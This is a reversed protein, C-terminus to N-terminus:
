DTGGVKLDIADIQEVFAPDKQKIDIANDLRRSFGVAPDDFTNRLYNDRALANFASRVIGPGYKQEYFNAIKQVEGSCSSSVDSAMLLYLARLGVWDDKKIPQM